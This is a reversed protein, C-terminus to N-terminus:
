LLKQWKHITLKKKMQRIIEKDGTTDDFILFSYDACDIGYRWYSKKEAM